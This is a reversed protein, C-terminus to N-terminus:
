KELGAADLLHKRFERISFLSRSAGSRLDENAVPDIDAFIFDEHHRRSRIIMEGLPDLIYSDGYGVGDYSL